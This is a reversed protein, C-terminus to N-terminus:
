TRKEKQGVEASKKLSNVAEEPLILHQALSIVVNAIILRCISTRRRSSCFRTAALRRSGVYPAFCTGNRDGWQQYHKKHLASRMMEGGETGRIAPRKTLDAGGRAKPHISM